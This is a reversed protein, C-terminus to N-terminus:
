DSGGPTLVWWCPHRCNATGGEGITLRPPLPHLQRAPSLSPPPARSCCLPCLSCLSSSLRLAGRHTIEASTSVRCSWPSGGDRVLIELTGTSIYRDLMNSEIAFGHEQGAGRRAGTKSGVLLRQHIKEQCKTAQIGPYSRCRRRSCKQKITGPGLFIVSNSVM